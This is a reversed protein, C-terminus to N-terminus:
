RLLSTAALALTRADAVTIPWAGLAMGYLLWLAVGSTFAGVMGLPIGALDSSRVAHWAQPVFAGTTLSAALYGLWQPELLTTPPCRLDTCVRIRPCASPM